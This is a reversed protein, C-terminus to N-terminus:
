GLTSASYSIGYSCKNANAFSTDILEERKKKDLPRPQELIKNGFGIRAYLGVVVDEVFEQLLEMVLSRAVRQHNHM